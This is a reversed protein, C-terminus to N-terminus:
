RVIALKSSVSYGGESMARIFYIGKPLASVDLKLDSESTVGSLRTNGLADSIRYNIPGGSNFFNIMVQDTAPNPEINNIRITGTQLFSTLEPYGCEPLLTFSTQSTTVSAICDNSRGLSSVFNLNELGIPTQSSRTVYPYFHLTALIPVTSVQLVQFNLHALGDPTRMYGITDVSLEDARLFRLLDDEYTLTFDLATVDAPLTGTQIVQFMVDVGAIASDPPSINLEWATPYQIERSLAIPALPQDADSTITLSANNTLTSGTTDIQTVLHITDLAGPAL